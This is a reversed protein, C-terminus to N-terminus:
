LRTKSSEIPLKITVTLGNNTNNSASIIGNHAIVAQKAIALGLGTGGTARDRAQAVRYFPEFLKPLDDVPVGTGTDVIEICSSIIRQITQDIAVCCIIILNFWKIWICADICIYKWM